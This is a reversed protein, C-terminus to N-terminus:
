KTVSVLSGTEFGLYVSGLSLWRLSDDPKYIDKHVYACIYLCVSRHVSLRTHVYFWLYTVSPITACAQLGLVQSASVPSNGCTWPLRAWMTLRAWQLTLNQRSFVFCFLLLFLLSFITETTRLFLCTNPLFFFSLFPSLSLSVSLSVSIYRGPKQCDRPDWSWWVPLTDGGLPWRVSWVQMCKM